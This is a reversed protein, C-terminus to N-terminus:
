VGNGRSRAVLSLVASATGGRENVRSYDVIPCGYIHSYSPPLSFVATSAVTHVSATTTITARPVPTARALLPSPSSARRCNALHTKRSSNLDVVAALCSLHWVGSHIHAPPSASRKPRELQTLWPHRRLVPRLSSSLCRIIETILAVAGFAPGSQHLRDPRFSWVVSAAPTSAGGRPSAATFM